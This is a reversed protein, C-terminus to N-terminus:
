IEIGEVEAFRRLSERAMRPLHAKDMLAMAAFKPIDLLRYKGQNTKNPKKDTWAGTKLNEWMPRLSALAFRALAWEEVNAFCAPSPLADALTLENGDSDEIM